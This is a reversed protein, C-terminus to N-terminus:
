KLRRIDSSHTITTTKTAVARAPTVERGGCGERDRLGQQAMGDTMATRDPPDQPAGKGVRGRHGRLGEREMGVTM